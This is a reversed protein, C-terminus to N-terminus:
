LSAPAAELTTEGYFIGVPVGICRALDHIEEAAFSVDGRMRRSAAMPSIHLASAIAVQRIQKQAMVMRVRAAIDTRSETSTQTTM